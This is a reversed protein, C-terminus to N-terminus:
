RRSWKEVTNKRRGRTKRTSKMRPSGDKMTWGTTRIPRATERRSFRSRTMNPQGKESFPSPFPNPLLFALSRKEPETRARTTEETENAIGAGTSRQMRANEDDDNQRPLLRRRKEKSKGRDASATDAKKMRSKNQPYWHTAALHRESSAELMASFSEMEISSPREATALITPRSVERRSRSPTTLAQTSLTASLM